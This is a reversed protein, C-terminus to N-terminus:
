LTPRPYLFLRPAPQRMMPKKLASPDVWGMQPKTQLTGLFGEMARLQAESVENVIAAIHQVGHLRKHGVEIQEPRLAGSM